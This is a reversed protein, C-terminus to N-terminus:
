SQADFQSKPEPPTESDSKSIKGVFARVPMIETDDSTKMPPTLNATLSPWLLATRRRM